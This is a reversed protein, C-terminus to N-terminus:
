RRDLATANRAGALHSWGGYRLWVRRMSGSWASPSAGGDFGHNVERAFVGHPVFDGGVLFIPMDLDKPEAGELLRDATGYEALRIQVLASCM